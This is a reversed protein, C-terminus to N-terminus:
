PRKVNEKCFAFRENYRAAFLMNPIFHTSDGRLLDSYLKNFALVHMGAKSYPRSAHGRVFDSMRDNSKTM